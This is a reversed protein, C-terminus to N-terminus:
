FVRCTEFAPETQMKLHIYFSPFSKNEIWPNLGATELPVMM